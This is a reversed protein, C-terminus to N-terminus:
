LIQRILTGCIPCHPDINEKVYTDILYGVGFGLLIISLSKLPSQHNSLGLTSCILRGAFYNNQFETKCNPCNLKAMLIGKM